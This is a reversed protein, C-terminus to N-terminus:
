PQVPLASPTRRASPQASSSANSPTTPGKDHEVCHHAASWQWCIQEPSAFVAFAAGPPTRTRGERH